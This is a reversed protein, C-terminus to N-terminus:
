IFRFFDIDTVAKVIAFAFIIFAFGIITYYIMGKAKSVQEENDRVTVFFVGSIIFSVFIALWAFRFLQRILQPLFDEFLDGEPVAGPRNPAILIKNVDALAKEAEEQAIEFAASPLVRPLAGALAPQVIMNDQAQLTTFDDVRNEATNLKNNASEKRVDNKILGDVREELAEYANKLDLQAAEMNEQLANVENEARNGGSAGIAALEQSYLTIVEEKSEAMVSVPLLFLLTIIALKKLNKM